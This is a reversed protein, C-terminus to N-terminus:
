EGVEQSHEFEAVMSLNGFLPTRVEYYLDITFANRGAIKTAGYDDENINRLDALGVRRHLAMLVKDKTTNKLTPDQAVQDMIGKM